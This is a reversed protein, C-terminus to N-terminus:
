SHHGSVARLVEGSLDRSVKHSIDGLSLISIMKRQSDMVPLRRIQKSEMLKIATQLDDEPSCCVVNKTMVDKATMKTVDGGNAVARCTIDRDTVMGVVQGGREKIPIAGIDADRMYRAIEGIPATSELCTVGKHMADKVKM